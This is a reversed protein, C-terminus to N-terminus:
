SMQILGVKHYLPEFTGGTDSIGHKHQGGGGDTTFNVSSGGTASIKSVSQGPNTTFVYNDFKVAVTLPPVESKVLTHYDISLHAAVSGDGGLDGIKSIDNAFQLVRGDVNTTVLAWGSPIAQSGSRGWLTQHGSAYTIGAGGIGSVSDDVYKKTAAHLDASPAGSLTLLGTMTDGGRDVFDANDVYQKSAAHLAATPDGDLTIKGTMTGGAKSLFDGIEPGPAVIVDKSGSGWTLLSTSETAGDWSEIVNDKTLEDEGSPGTGYSLTGELLEYWGTSADLEYYQIGSQGDGFHDRLARKGTVAGGLRLTGNGTTTTTEHCRIATIGM